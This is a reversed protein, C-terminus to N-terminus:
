AEKLKWTTDWEVFGQRSGNVNNTQMHVSLSITTLLNKHSKERKWYHSDTTSSSVKSLLQPLTHLTCTCIVGCENPNDDGSRLYTCLLQNVIVNMNHLHHSFINRHLSYWTYIHTCSVWDNINNYSLPIYRTHLCCCILIIMIYIIKSSPLGEQSVSEICM